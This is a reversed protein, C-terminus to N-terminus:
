GPASLIDAAIVLVTDAHGSEIFAASAILANM